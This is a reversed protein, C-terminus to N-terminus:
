NRRENDFYRMEGSTYVDVKPLGGKRGLQKKAELKNRSQSIM